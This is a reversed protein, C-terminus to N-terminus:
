LLVHAQDLCLEKVNREKAVTEVMERSIAIVDESADGDNQRRSLLGCENLAFAADEPRLDTAKAIDRLTCRVVVHSTASGDSNLSTEIERLSSLLHDAFADTPIHGWSIMSRVTSRTNHHIGSRQSV